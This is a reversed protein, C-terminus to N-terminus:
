VAQEVASGLVGPSQEMEQPRETVRALEEDSIQSGKGVVRTEENERKGHDNREEPGRPNCARKQKAVIM